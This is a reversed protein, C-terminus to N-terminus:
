EASLHTPDPPGSSAAAASVGAIALAVAFLALALAVAGSRRRPRVPLVVPGTLDSLHLSPPAALGPLDEAALAARMAAASAFRDAPSKSMARRIVADLRSALAGDGVRGISPVQRGLHAQVLEEPTGDFPRRGTLTEFLIVGISYVDAAPGDLEGKIREPALYALHGAALGLRRLPGENEDRTCAVGFDVLVPSGDPKLIVNSPKVDRHVVGAAHAHALADLLGLAVTVAQRPPLPGRDLAARLTDGEIWELLLVPQGASRGVDLLRVIGPHRLFTLARMERDLTARAAAADPDHLLKVAIPPQGPASARFVRAFGGEGVEAELRYRGCV